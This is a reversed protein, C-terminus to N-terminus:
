CSPFVDKPHVTWEDTGVLVTVVNGTRKTLLAAHLKGERRVVASGSLIVEQSLQGQEKKTLRPHELFSNLKAMQVPLDWSKLCITIKPDGTYVPLLTPAAVPLGVTRRTLDRQRTFEVPWRNYLALAVGSGHSLHCNAANVVMQPGTGVETWAIDGLVMQM